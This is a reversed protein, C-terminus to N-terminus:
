MISTAIKQLMLNRYGGKKEDIMIDSLISCAGGIIIPHKVQCQTDYLMVSFIKSRNIPNSTACSDYRSVVNM